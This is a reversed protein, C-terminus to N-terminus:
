WISDFTRIKYTFTNNIDGEVRIYNYITEPFVLNTQTVLGDNLFIEVSSQDVYIDMKIKLTEVPISAQFSGRFSSSIETDETNNRNFTLRNSQKDLMISAAENQGNSLIISTIDNSELEMEVQLQYAKKGNLNLKTQINQKLSITEWGSAINNIEDVVENSLVLYGNPHQVISLERPLTMAGRAGNVNNMPFSPILNAYDWNNMWGIFLRRGDREPINNWTVGAYNDKGYDVWLPYPAPDATFNVGDFNGIFYQTGTGGNPAGGNSVLLVWKEQGDFNLPFLDPCEWTGGHSGIGDGFASLKNWDKLNDSKYFTITQSTALAMIWQNSANHWFVKPDRFDSIGGNPLVPNNAYKTFTRGKDLSYALCQMQTTGSATYIAVIADAGFGATNNKDVVACGSFIDGLNDPMLAVSLQKWHILDTSVAHGWSMNGWTSRLPNHQFFLHYEGDLYVLGNPDNIWNKKSSFHIQPRYKENYFSSATTSEPEENTKECSSLLVSLIICLFVGFIMKLFFVQRKLM